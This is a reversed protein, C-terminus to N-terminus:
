HDLQERKVRQKDTRARQERGGILSDHFWWGNKVIGRLEKNPVPLTDDLQRIHTQRMTNERRMSVSQSGPWVRPYTCSPLPDASSAERRDAFVAITPALSSTLM